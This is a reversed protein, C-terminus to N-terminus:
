NAIFEGLGDIAARAMTLDAHQYLQTTAAESHGMISQVVKVDVGQSMLLTAVTHRASHLPVRPLECSDMLAYWGALDAKADIPHGDDDTWVLGFPRNRAIQSRRHEKLAEILVRPIPVMRIGAESKPRTLCVRGHVVRYEFGGPVDLERKPCSGARKKGCSAACGHRYGIPQLQWSLDVTGAELDVRDWELGLCEAQRAGTLLAMLWRARRPDGIAAALLTRADDVALAGRGGKVARTQVLKAVNRPVLGEREADSLAARLVRHCKNANGLSTAEQVERHMARVHGPTLKSLPVRGMRPRLHKSIVSRYDAYTRPKLTPKAIEELWKDLWEALPTGKVPVAGLSDLDSRAKRLKKLAGAKTRSTAEWRKREGHEDWGLELRAVWLGRGKREFLSGDGYAMRGM